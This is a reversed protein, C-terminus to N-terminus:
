RLRAPKIVSKRGTQVLMLPAHVGITAHKTDQALAQVECACSCRVANRVDSM